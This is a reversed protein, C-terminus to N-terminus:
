CLFQRQLGLPPWEPPPLPPPRFIARAEQLASNNPFEGLAQEILPVLRDVASAMRVIEHWNNIAKDSFSITTSNLGAQDIIRRADDQEGYLQALADRLKTHHETWNTNIM